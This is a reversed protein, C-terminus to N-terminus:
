SLIPVWLTRFRIVSANNGTRYGAVAAADNVWRQAPVQTVIGVVTYGSAWPTVTGNDGATLLTDVAYTGTADYQDTEIELVNNCPMGVIMPVSVTGAMQASLDTAAQLAFYFLTKYARDSSNTTVRFKDSALTMLSGRVIARGAAGDVIPRLAVPMDVAPYGGKPFNLWGM